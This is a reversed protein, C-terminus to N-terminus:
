LSRKRYINGGALWPPIKPTKPSIGSVPQSPFKPLGNPLGTLIKLRPNNTLRTYPMFLLPSLKAEFAIFLSAHFLNELRIIQGIWSLHRLMAQGGVSIVYLLGNDHPPDNLCIMIDGKSIGDSAFEDNDAKVIFVDKDALEGLVERLIPVIKSKNSLEFPYACPITGYFPVEVADLKRIHDKLEEVVSGLSPRVLRSDGDNFFIDPQEGLGRALAALVARGPNSIRDNALQNVYERTLPPGGKDAIGQQTLGKEKAISQIIAGISKM